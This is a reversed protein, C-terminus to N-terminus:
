WCLRKKTTWLRLWLGGGDLRIRRILGLGNCSKHLWINGLSRWNWRLRSRNNLIRITLLGLLWSPLKVWLLLLLLLTGALRKVVWWWLLLQVMCGRLVWRGCLPLFKIPWARMITSGLRERRGRLEM